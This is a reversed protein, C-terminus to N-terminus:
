KGLENLGWGCYTTYVASNFRNDSDVYSVYATVYASRVALCAGQRGGSFFFAPFVTWGLTLMEGM